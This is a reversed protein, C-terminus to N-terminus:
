WIKVKSLLIKTQKKLVKDKLPFLLKQYIHYSSLFFFLLEKIFVSYFLVYPLMDAWPKWVLFCLYQEMKIVSFLDDTLGVKEKLFVHPMFTQSFYFLNPPFVSCVKPM